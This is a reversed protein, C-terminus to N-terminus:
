TYIYVNIYVYMIAHGGFWVLLQHYNAAAKFFSVLGVARFVEHVQIQRASLSM